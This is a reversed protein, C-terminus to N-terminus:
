PDKQMFEEFSPLNEYEHNDKHLSDQPALLEGFTGLIDDTKESLFKRSNMTEYVLRRALYEKENEGLEADLLEAFIDSLQSTAQFLMAGAKTIGDNLGSAKESLQSQDFRMEAQREKVKDLEQQKEGSLERAVALEQTKDDAEKQKEALEAKLQITADEILDEVAQKDLAAISKDNMILAQKEPDLQALKRLQRYGLGMKQSAEFFEEGFRVLNRLRNDINQVDTVLIEKCFESWTSITVLEGNDNEYTFGKYSKTEKIEQLLKLETVTVFKRILDFGQSQGVAMSIKQIQYNIKKTDIIAKQQETTMLEQNTAM